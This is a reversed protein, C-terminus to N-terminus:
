LLRGLIYGVLVGVIFATGVIKTSFLGKQGSRSIVFYSFIYSLFNLLLFFPLSIIRVIAPGVVPILTILSILESFAHTFIGVIFMIAGLIHVDMGTMRLVITLVILIIWLVFTKWYARFFDKIM